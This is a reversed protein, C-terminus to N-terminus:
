DYTRTSYNYSFRGVAGRYNFCQQSAVLAGRQVRLQLARHRALRALRRLARSLPELELERADREIEVREWHEVERVEDVRLGAQAVEGLGGCLHARRAPGCCLNGYGYHM